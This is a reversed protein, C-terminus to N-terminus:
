DRCQRKRRAEEMEDELWIDRAERQEPTFGMYEDALTTTRFLRRALALQSPTLHREEESVIKWARERRQPSALDLYSETSSASPGSARSAVVAATLGAVSEALTSLFASSSPRKRANAHTSSRWTSASESREVATQQSPAHETTSQSPVATERPPTRPIDDMEEGQESGDLHQSQFQILFIDCPLSLCYVETPELDESSAQLRMRQTTAVANEGTAQNKSVLTECQRFHPFSHKRYYM